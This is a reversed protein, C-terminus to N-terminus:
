RRPKVLGALCRTKPSIPHLGKQPWAPRDTLAPHVTPAQVRLPPYHRLKNFWLEDARGRSLPPGPKKRQTGAKAPAFPCDRRTALRDTYQRGGSGEQALRMPGRDAARAAPAGGLTLSAASIPPVKVSIATKSSLDPVSAKPLASDVGSRSTSPM